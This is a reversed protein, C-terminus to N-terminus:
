ILVSDDFDVDFDATRSLQGSANIKLDELNKKYFDLIRKSLDYIKTLNTKSVDIM